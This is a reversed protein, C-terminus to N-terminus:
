GGMGGDGAPRGPSSRCLSLAIGVPLADLTPELRLRPLAAPAGAHAAPHRGRGSGDWRHRRAAGGGPPPPPPPPVQPTSARTLARHWSSASLAPAGGQILRIPPPHVFCGYMSRLLY